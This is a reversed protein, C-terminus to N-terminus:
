HISTYNQRVLKSYFKLTVDAVVATTALSLGVVVEKADLDTVDVLGVKRGVNDGVFDGCGAGVEIKFVTGDTGRVVVLEAAVLGTLKM